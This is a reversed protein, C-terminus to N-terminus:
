HPRWTTELTFSVVDIGDRQVTSYGELHVQELMQLASLRDVYALVEPVTRAEGALRLTHQRADPTISLLGLGRADASELAKFLADWPVALQDIVANAAAIRRAMDPSAVEVRPRAPQLRAALLEHRAEQTEIAARQLALERAVFGACAAALALALWEGWRPRRAAAPHFDLLLARM